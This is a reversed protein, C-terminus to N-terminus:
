DPSDTPDTPSSAPLIRAEGPLSGGGPSGVFGPVTELTREGNVIREILRFSGTPTSGGSPSAGQETEGGSFFGSLLEGLPNKPKLETAGGRDEAGVQGSRIVARVDAGVAMAESLPAAEDPAVAIYIEQIPVARSVTGRTLSSSSTPQERVRVPTVVKGDSVIVRVEAQKEWGSLQLALSLQDGYPGGGGLKGTKGRDPDVPNTRIIDFRDGPRLGHLGKVKSAEVLLMMKDPPVGAVLGERTGKPYFDDETFVYGRTKDHDLVRGVLKSIDRIVSDPLNEEDLLITSLKGQQANWLHERRIKTYAPIDVASIPVAVKGRLDPRVPREEPEEVRLLSVGPLDFDLRLDGRAQLFVALGYLALTFVGGLIWPTLSGRSRAM